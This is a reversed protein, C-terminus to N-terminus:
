DAGQQLRAHLCGLRREGHLSSLRATKTRRSLGDPLVTPVPYLGTTRKIRWDIALMFDGFSEESWLNKDGKAESQADYDIVGDVVKWHGNDGEPVKWGSLDKGNFLPKWGEGQPPAALATAALPLAILLSLLQTITSKKVIRDEVFSSM